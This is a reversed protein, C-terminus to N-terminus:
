PVIRLSNISKSPTWSTRMGFSFETKIISSKLSTYYSPNEGCVHTHVQQDTTSETHRLNNEGCVHPPVELLLLLPMTLISNEGCV